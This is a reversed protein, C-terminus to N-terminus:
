IQVLCLVTEGIKCHDFINYHNSQMWRLHVETKRLIGTHSQADWIRNKIKSDEGTGEVERARKGEQVSTGTVRM